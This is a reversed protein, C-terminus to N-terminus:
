LLDKGSFSSFLNKASNGRKFAYWNEKLHGFFYKFCTILSAFETLVDETDSKTHTLGM